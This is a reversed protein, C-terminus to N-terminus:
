APTPEPARRKFDKDLFNTIAAELHAQSSFGSTEFFAPRIKPPACLETVPTGNIAAWAMREFVHKRADKRCHHEKAAKVAYATRGTEEHIAVTVVAPGLSPPNDAENRYTLVGDIAHLYMFRLKREM